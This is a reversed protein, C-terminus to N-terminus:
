SSERREAAIDGLLDYSLMSHECLEPGEKWRAGLGLTGIALFIGKVEVRKQSKRAERMYSLDCPYGSGEM